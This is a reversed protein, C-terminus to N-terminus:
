TTTGAGASELEAQRRRRDNAVDRLYVPRGDRAFFAAATASTAPRRAANRGAISPFQRQMAATAARMGALFSRNAAPSRPRRAPHLRSAMFRFGREPIPSSASRTPAAPRCHLHPRHRALKALEVQLNEPSTRLPRQGPGATSAPPQRHRANLTLSPSTTSAAASSSRSPFASDSHSRLNARIKEHVRLIADDATTGVFFRATILSATTRPPPISTSSAASARQRHDRSARHRAEGCGRGQPWRRYRSIDVMPVSIQPEEERPLALGPRPYGLALAPSASHAADAALQHLLAHPQRLHGLGSRINPTMEPDHAVVVRDGDKLGTLVEVRDHGCRDAEGLM